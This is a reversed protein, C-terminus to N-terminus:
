TKDEEAMQSHADARRVSAMSARHQVSRAQRQLERDILALTESEQAEFEQQMAAIQATLITRRRELDHKRREIEQQRELQESEEVSEQALRASGTLVGGPGVYVDRLQIGNDTILFERTQNSHAMGRSKLISLARNREGGTNVSMLLLWTDILSSIASDTRELSEGGLTLSTFLATIQRTKLFDILRTLMGKVELENGQTIFSNLPDLIVVSPAFQEVARHILTLHMELGTFSPRAAHFRLLDQKTWRALDLGITSMNRQIQAAPEEFAFYLTREGRACTAAAFHGALSSKGTGATGSVLVSSGRFFGNDGLMTDLRAVGSSIRETSVPHDLGLSTIPTVSIGDADILFPYDNTGHSSGRYKLVRLRRTWTQDRQQHDLTIVCDSVYEELGQRTLQGDGREGTIIATVGKDKLWRFLRRLEARLILPNPLGAFITEITDLVVRKAGISDIAYGLRIFLGSLDFDGTQELESREVAVFDLALQGRAVLDNLDFGLSAVNQALEEATEEFAIFVGPEGFDTAGRVLFEMALLTKGCGAGGCVLTPRGRPLGGCTIEDLGSIGTAAKPLASDITSM